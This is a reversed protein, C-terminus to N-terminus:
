CKSGLVWGKKFKPFDDSGFRWKQTWFRLKGPYIYLWEMKGRTQNPRHVREIMPLWHLVVQGLGLHYKKRESCAQTMKWQILFLMHRHSSMQRSLLNLVGQFNLMAASFNGFGLLFPPDDEKGVMKWPNGSATLSRPHGGVKVPESGMWITWKSVWRVRAIKKTFFIIDLQSSTSARHTQWLRIQPNTRPSQLGFCFM